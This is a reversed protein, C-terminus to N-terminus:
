VTEGSDVPDPTPLDEEPEEIIVSADPNIANKFGEGASFLVRYYGDHEFLVEGSVKDRVVRGPYKESKAFTGLNRIGVHGYEQVQEPLAVKMANIVQNVTEQPLATLEAIRKELKAETM